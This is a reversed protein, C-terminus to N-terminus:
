KTKWKWHGYTRKSWTLLTLRKMWARNFNVTQKQPFQLSNRMSLRNGISDFPRLFLSRSTQRFSRPEARDKIQNCPLLCHATKEQKTACIQRQFIPIIKYNCTPIDKALNTTHRCNAECAEGNSSDYYTKWVNAKYAHEHRNDERKAPKYSLHTWYLVQIYHKLNKEKTDANQTNRLLAVTDLWGHLNASSM